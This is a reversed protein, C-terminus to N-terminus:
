KHGWSVTGDPNDKLVVGADAIKDRIQDAKAWDQDERAKKRQAILEEIEIDSLNSEHGSLAKKAKKISDLVKEYDQYVLGTAQGIFDIVDKIKCYLDQHIGEEAFERNVLRIM